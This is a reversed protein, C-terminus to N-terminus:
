FNVMLYIESQMARFNGTALLSDLAANSSGFDAGLQGIRGVVKQNDDVKYELGIGAHMQTTTTSFTAAEETGVIRQYGALFSFRRWFNYYLGVNLFGSNFSYDFYEATTDAMKGKAGELSYGLSVKCTNLVKAWKAIDVCFGGAAKTFSAKEVSDLLMAEVESLMAVSGGIDVAGDFLKLKAEAKPGTRNATAQGGPLVTQLANDFRANVNDIQALDKRSLIANLYSIKRRPEKVWDVNESPTFKFVYDYLADFTTYLRADHEFDNEINMIRQGLFTPSQAMENRFDRDNNMFGVNFTLSGANGLSVMGKLGVDLAMGNVFKEVVTTDITTDVAFTSDFTYWASDRDKSGAAEVNLGVNFADSEIFVATTPNFRFGWVGTNQAILEPDYKSGPGFTSTAKFDFIKFYTAGLGLGKLAVLDFNGAVFYRDMFTRVLANQDNEFAASVAAGNKVSAEALRLRSAQANFHFENFIPVVEADFNFNVGQLLRDNDGLFVERMAERRKAAFIEPEYAIAIDPSWLTLPSYHQRYDGVNFRIMDAVNGDISLWRTFIPNAVDSWFNHWNQHMRFIARASLSENPRAGIDFDVSTYENGESQKKNWDIANEGSADSNLTSELFQSRFTGNFHIGAKNMISNLGSQIQDMKESEDDTAAFLSVSLFLTALVATRVVMLPGKKIDKNRKNVNNNKM